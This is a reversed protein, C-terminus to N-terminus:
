VILCLEFLIGKIIFIALPNFHKVPLSLSLFVIDLRENIDKGTEDSDLVCVIVDNKLIFEIYISM